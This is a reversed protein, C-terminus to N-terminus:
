NRSEPYVIEWSSHVNEQLFTWGNDHNKNKPGSLTIFNLLDNQIHNLM